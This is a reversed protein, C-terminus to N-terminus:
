IIQNYENLKDYLNNLREKRIVVLAVILKKNDLLNNIIVDNTENIVIDEYLKDSDISLSKENIISASKNYIEIQQSIYEKIDEYINNKYNLENQRNKYSNREKISLKSIDKLSILENDKEESNLKKRILNKMMTYDIGVISPLISNSVRKYDVLLNFYDFFIDKNNKSNSLIEIKDNENLTSIERILNNITEIRKPKSKTDKNKHLTDNKISNFNEMFKENSYKFDKEYAVINPSFNEFIKDLAKLNKSCIANKNNEVGFLFILKQNHTHIFKINTFGEEEIFEKSKNSITEILKKNYSNKTKIFKYVTYSYLSALGMMSIKREFRSVM